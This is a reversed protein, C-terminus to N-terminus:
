VNRPSPQGPAVAPAEAGTWVFVMGDAVSAEFMTTGEDPEEGTSPGVAPALKNTRLGYGM